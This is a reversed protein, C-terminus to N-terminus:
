HEEPVDPTPTSAATPPLAGLAAWRPDLPAAHSHDPHEALRAGCDPCLGPCDPRCLVTPPLALVVADRLVPELDLLEHDLVPTDEDVDQGPHVFLEQADVDLVGDVEDLCRACEALYPVSARLTVLVGEMVAELLLDTEVPLGAEVHSLGVQMGEPAPLSRHVRQSTGPRRGLERTDLVYPAHPDLSSM